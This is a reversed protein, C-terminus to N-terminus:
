EAIEGTIPGLGASRRLENAFELLDAHNMTQDGIRFRGIGLVTVHIKEARLYDGVQRLVEKPLAAMARPARDDTEETIETKEEWARPLRPLSPTSRKSPSTTGASVGAIPEQAANRTQENPLKPAGSIVVSRPEETVDIQVSSAKDGILDALSKRMSAVGAEFGRQRAEAILEEIDAMVDNLSKTM